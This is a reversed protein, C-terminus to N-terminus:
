GDAALDEATDEIEQLIVGCLRRMMTEVIPDFGGFPSGAILLRGLQALKDDDAPEHIPSVEAHYREIEEYLWRAGQATLADRVMDEALPLIESPKDARNPDCISRAIMWRMLFGNRADIFDQGGDPHIQKAERESEGTSTVLDAESLLRLGVVVKGTPKRDWTTAWVSEPITLLREPADGRKQDRLDSFTGV